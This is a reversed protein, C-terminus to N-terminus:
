PHSYGAIEEPKPYGCIANSALMGAMVTAEVCGANFGNDVWDGTIVLNDFGTEGPKIRFKTSGPVSMVYRESPDINGRWFQEEFRELGKKNNSACLLDWNIGNSSSRLSPMLHGINQEFWALADKKVRNDEQLPVNSQQEHPTPGTMPGCYYAITKPQNGKPFAERGILHSMNAWTNLPDAYADLVPSKDKWGLSELDENFWVQLAMTRVTEVKDVMDKWRSNALVLDKCLFPVSGLSIGFVIRDFDKNKELTIEEVDKWDSWFSELNVRGQQLEDGEKLQDYLPESPWCDLNEVSIFPSYKGGKLTAQRGLHIKSVSKKDESVSLGKVKHFFKFEVGRRKLVDHMPTFITDGMGAQMKWFIAGKYTFCIRFICRLAIGASLVPKDPEGNRYAFVLDYLGKVIGSKYSIESAGHKKLWDRFETDDIADLGEKHTLIGDSILGRIGAFGLDMMIFLRRAEDDHDAEAITEKEVWNIFEELLKLLSDHHGKEHLKPDDELKRSFAIAEKLLLAGLSLEFVEFIIRGDLFLRRFFEKIKMFLTSRHKPNKEATKDSIRSSSGTTHPSDMFMEHMWDLTMKIYAWIDPLEGGQGPIDDNEPFDFEWNRWTDKADKNDIHEELVVFNHKKFADEWTALPTGTPRGLEKYVDQIVKFANEYLGLWIHLGHEEIRGNVGRGSAGKGGLRWGAQYVTITEFREKWDPANTLMYATSLSGLGGGLVTIKEKGNTKTM